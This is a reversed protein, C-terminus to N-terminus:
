HERERQFITFLWWLSPALIVMGVAVVGLTAAMVAPVAAADAVTTYPPLLYPYQAIGWGWLVAAAALSATIRVPLYRRYYLLGLSVLGAVVSLVVVAGGPGHLLRDALAPADRDVVVLAAAALVGCGAGAALARRRFPEVLEPATRQADRTLFTAALYACVGVALLGLVISTPNLWSTVLDGAAIGPPVRGTAVGGAVTGLFFPTAVSSFAFLAGFLRQRGLTTSAKRFAFGAGRGIIGLAAVTLPIYMTSTIAAFVPPFATWLLVIAFILWVHNAEWVPGISHEILKRQPWGRRAGGAVLDWFGGGFDAGGLLAYATLAALLILLLAVKM